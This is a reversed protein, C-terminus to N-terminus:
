DDVLGAERALEAVIEYVAEFQELTQVMRARYRRLHEVIRVPLDWLVAAGAATGIKSHVLEPGQHKAVNIAAQAIFAAALTGSRGVGASCHIWTPAPPFIKPMAVQQTEHMLQLLLSTPFVGHDPWSTLHFQTVQWGNPEATDIHLVRRILTAKGQDLQIQKESESRVKWGNSLVAEAGQAANPWYQDAKSRGKEVLPTLNILVAVRAQVLHGYFATYTEPLPAQSVVFSLSTPHFPPIYAANLYAGPLLAHDYALIDRYRNADTNEAASSTTTSYGLDPETLRLHDTFDLAQYLSALTRKSPHTGLSM